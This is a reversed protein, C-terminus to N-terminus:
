QLSQHAISLKKLFDKKRAIQEQIMSVLRERAEEERHGQLISNAEKYLSAVKEVERSVDRKKKIHISADICTGFFFLIESVVTSLSREKEQIVSKRAEIKKEFVVVEKPIEPKVGTWGRLPPEPWIERINM